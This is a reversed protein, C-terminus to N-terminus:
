NGIGDCCSVRSQYRTMVVMECMHCNIKKKLLSSLTDVHSDLLDQEMITLYSNTKETWNEEM